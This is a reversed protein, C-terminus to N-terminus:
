PEQVSGTLLYEDPTMAPVPSARFDRVSRTVIVHCGRSRAVAAVVADEFDPWNLRIADRLQPEGIGSVEFYELLWEVARDARARGAYRNVIFHVTTVAHAPITGQTDGAAVRELVAASARYHPERKQIVDLLVNLDILIM